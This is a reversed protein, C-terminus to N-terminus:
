DAKLGSEKILKTLRATEARILTQFEAPSSGVVEVGTGLFRERIDPRVIFRVVEQNMRAIIPAPTKAPAWLGTAGIWEYGPIGVAPLGPVLESPDPSTVALAKLKGAKVHPMILSSDLVTMQVEGKLLAAIVPAAGKYPIRTMDVGAMSKFLEVSFHISGVSTSSGYNLQGPRAKTYAVLEKITNAPVSPHIAVVQVSREIQTIPLFDKEVDYPVELLMPPIWIKGGVTMTYGDPPAKAALETALIGTSRNDVIVQQGLPASIGSAVLRATIDGGGGAATTIFRIPKSPYEQACAAGTILVILSAALMGQSRM